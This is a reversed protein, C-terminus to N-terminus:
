CLLAELAFFLLTKAGDKGQVIDVKCKIVFHEM